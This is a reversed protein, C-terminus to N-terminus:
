QQTDQSHKAPTNGACHSGRGCGVHSYSYDFVAAFHTLLKADDTAVYAMLLAIMAENHPWWLKMDWELQVPSEGEVDLFYFLGGHETDWGRVFSAKIFSDIALTKM